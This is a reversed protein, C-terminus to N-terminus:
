ASARGRWTSVQWTANPGHLYIDSVAIRDIGAKPALLRAKEVYERPVTAGVEHM